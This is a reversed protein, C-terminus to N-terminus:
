VAGGDRSGAGVFGGDGPTDLVNVQRGKWEISAVSMGLTMGRETEEDPFEFSPPRVGLITRFEGAVEITKGVVEPDRAFWNTWLWHSLVVVRGEEDEMTPVRGIAPTVGLTSFLPPPGSGVFLRDVKEGSRVTTQGSGAFALDQLGRANEKYTLYFESGLGFEDGLDSGPATGRIVVLRDPEPFSLPDLLVTQVVSFIATNAGIALALTLAAIGTFAPARLLSRPAHPLDRRWAELM